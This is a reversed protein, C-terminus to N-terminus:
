SAELVLTERMNWVGIGFEVQLLEKGRLIRRRGATEKRLM